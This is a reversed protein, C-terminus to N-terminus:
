PDWYRPTSDGQNPPFSGFWYRGNHRITMRRSDPRWAVVRTERERWAKEVRAQLKAHTESKEESSEILTFM